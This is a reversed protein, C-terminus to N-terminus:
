VSLSLMGEGPCVSRDLLSLRTGHPTPVYARGIGRANMFRRWCKHTKEEIPEASKQAVSTEADVHIQRKRTQM